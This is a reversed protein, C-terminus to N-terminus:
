NLLVLKEFKNVTKGTPATVKVKYIYVGKGIEDGFEDRGDWYIPGARYSNSAFIADLTKVLKGSVTFVQIRVDLEQGPANHDFYFATNTTFPNPYNLIHDIALESNDAVIFETFAKGSNNYVDWVKLSLTHKGEELKEFPYTITGSQYSDLDSEYYDNLVIANATNEDLIATIDHGIGNGVTNIGNEDFVKAFLNPNQDTMGGVVFSEDNMWLNVEPGKQDSGANESRGGIVMKEYAGNADVSGDDAYYSIKANGFDFIIDKPVVFTFSFDGNKVTAKGKFIISEQSNYKFVGEDDNDLTSVEQPQDYVTVQVVGNFDDVKAGFEDAVMGDITVKELAKITDPANTTMVNYQPYALRIAPDGLLAFNRYNVGNNNNILSVDKSLMLLEGLTPVKGDVAEFAYDTFTQSLEYNPSSYVLRTTTMLGIGGGDPNLLVYEGASTREPDDYRSFECTATLFLPMNNRNTWNNVDNVKLVREHAWGTEGGHGVYCMFLTGRKMANDIEENVDPYSQGGATAVQKYADFLIKNVNYDPYNTDIKRALNNAQRMHIRGDEDDGIFTVSNRWDGFTTPINHYRIIKNVVGRAQSLSSVPFRGIGIDLSSVLEDSEADDLFGFYDDSIFSATPTMSRLSQYAPVFNTNGSIRSKYDYSADGFLLLYKPMEAENLGARDYFMKVFDRIATLDQAGSSYENYIQNTTVVHVSLNSYDRHFDALREAENIFKPHSVILYEAASLGHLNQNKVKGSYSPVLLNNDTFAVFESLENGASKFSIQNQSNNVSPEQPELPNSVDWIQVNDLDGTLRYEEINNTDSESNRFVLQDSGLELRRKGILEIYDLWGIDVSNANNYQVNIALNPSSASFTNENDGYYAFRNAYGANVGNSFNIGLVPNGRYSFTFSSSRGIARSAVAGRITVPKSTVINPMTFPITYERKVSFQEGFWRKGSKILNRQDIEHIQHDDFENLVVDPSGTIANQSGVRKPQGIQYDTTIFYYTTDAYYNTQHRYTGNKYKWRNQSQGYFLIYDSQDFQGNNNQDIIKINNEKLDDLRPESNLTPLMGGGNGFLRISNTSLGSLDIGMQDLMNYGVRYVGDKTVGVKYWDGSRLVSSVKYSRSASKRTSQGEQFDFELKFSTLKELRNSTPNRRIPVFAFKAFNTRRSVSIYTTIDLVPKITLGNEQIVQEEAKTLPEWSQQTLQAEVDIVNTPAKESYSYVPLLNETQDYIAGDFSIYSKEEGNFDRFSQVGTWNIKHINGVHKGKSRRFNM